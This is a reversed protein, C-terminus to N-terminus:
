LNWPNHTPGYCSNETSSGFAFEDMNTKLPLVAIGAEKLKRIVTADYPPKFGTLIQSCCETNYGASCINDKISVPLGKLTNTSIDFSGLRVYAKIKSDIEKIRKELASLIEESVIEKNNLKEILEHATLKNLKEM